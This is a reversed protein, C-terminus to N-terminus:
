LMVKESPITPQMEPKDIRNKNIAVAIGCHTCNAKFRNEGQYIWEYGCRRCRLKVKQNISYIM